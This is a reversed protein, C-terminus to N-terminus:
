DADVLFMWLHLGWHAESPVVGAGSFSGFSGIRHCSCTPRRWTCTLCPPLFVQARDARQVNALPGQICQPTSSCTPSVSSKIESKYETSLVRTLFDSVIQSIEDLQLSLLGGDLDVNLVPPQHRFWGRRSKPTLRIACSLHDDQIGNYDSFLFLCKCPVTWLLQKLPRCRSSILLM